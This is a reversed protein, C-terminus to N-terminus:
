ILVFHYSCKLRQFIWCSTCSTLAVEIIPVELNSPIEPFLKNTSTVLPAGKVIWSSVVASHKNATELREPEVPFM